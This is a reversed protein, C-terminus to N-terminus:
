RIEIWVGGSQEVYRFATYCFDCWLEDGEYAKIEEGDQQLKLICDWCAIGTEGRLQNPILDYLDLSKKLRRTM